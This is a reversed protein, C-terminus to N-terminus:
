PSVGEPGQSDSPCKDPDTDIPDVLGLNLSVDGALAHGVGSQSNVTNGKPMENLGVSFNNQGQRIVRKSKNIQLEKYM